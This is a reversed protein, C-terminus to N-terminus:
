LESRSFQDPVVTLSLTTNLFPIVNKHFWGRSFEQHEGECEIFHLKGEQKLKKLGIFDSTYLETEELKLTEDVSFPKFYGFWSSERPVIVSDKSFKILLLNDLSEINQKYTANKIARENNIDALFSSEHEFLTPKMPHRFYQAPTLYEQSWEEYGGGQLVFDAHEDHVAPVQYVGAHPGAISVFTHVPPTNCREIFGRALLAGHGIAIINMGQQLRDVRLLIDCVAAVQRNMNTFYSDFRDGLEMIHVYIGPMAYRIWRSLVLLSSSDENLGHFLVVPTIFTKNLALVNQLRQRLHLREVAGSLKTVFKSHQQTTVPPHSESNSVKASAKSLMATFENNSVKCFSPGLFMQVLFFVFLFRSLNWM